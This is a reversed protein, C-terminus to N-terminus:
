RKVEGEAGPIERKGQRQELEWLKAYKEAVYASSLAASILGRAGDLFGLRFLYVKIFNYFPHFFIKAAAGKRGKRYYDMAMSTAYRNAKVIFEDISRHTFHLLRNHLLGYDGEPVLHSHAAADNFKYRDKQFLINNTDRGWGGHKMAKGLFINRRFVKYRGYVPQRLLDLIEDRLAEPMVEDSDIIVVWRHSVRELAWNRQRSESDYERQFFKDAYERAIEPTRDTSFSDVVVLEDVWSMSELCNKIYPMNNCCTILGSIKEM